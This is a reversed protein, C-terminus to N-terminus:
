GQELLMTTFTAAGARAEIAKAYEPSQYWAKAQQGSEFELIVMMPYGVEGELIEAIRGKAVLKAGHAAMTPKALEQYTKFKEPDTVAIGVVLYASM